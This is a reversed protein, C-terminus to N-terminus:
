NSLIFELYIFISVIRGANNNHLNIKSQIDEAKERADLFLESFEIGFDM